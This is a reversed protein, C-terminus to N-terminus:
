SNLFAIAHDKKQGIGRLGNDGLKTYPFCSADRRRDVREIRLRLEYMQQVLATSFCDHHQGAEVVFHLRELWSCTHAADNSRVNLFIEWWQEPEQECQEFFLFLAV